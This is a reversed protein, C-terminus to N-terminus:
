EAWVLMGKLHQAFGVCTGAYGVSVPVFPGRFAASFCCAAAGSAPQLTCAVVHCVRRGAPEAGECGLNVRCISAGNRLHFNEVPDLAYNRRQERLLYHAGLRLLLPQLQATQEPEQLWSRALAALCFTFPLPGHLGPLASPACSLLLPEPFVHM